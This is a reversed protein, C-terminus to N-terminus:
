PAIIELECDFDAGVVGQLHNAKGSSAIAQANDCPIIRTPQKYFRFLPLDMNQRCQPVDDLYVARKQLAHSIAYYVAAQEWAPAAVIELAHLPHTPLTPNEERM